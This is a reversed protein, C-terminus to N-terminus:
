AQKAALAKAHKCRERRIIDKGIDNLLQIKEKFLFAKEGDVYQDEPLKFGKEQMKKAYMAESHYAKVESELMAKALQISTIKEDATRGALWQKIEKKRKNILETKESETKYKEEAYLSNDYCRDFKRDYLNKREMEKTKATYKPNYLTDVAHTLEHMYTPLAEAKITKGNTAIDIEQGIYDGRKEIYDCGGEYEDSNKLRVIKIYKKEPLADATVAEIDKIRIKGDQIKDLLGDYVKDTVNKTKEYRTAMSGKSIDYSFKVFQNVPNIM